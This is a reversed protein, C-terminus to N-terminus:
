RKDNILTKIQDLLMSQKNLISTFDIISQTKDKDFAKLDNISDEYLKNVQNKLLKLEEKHEDKLDKLETRKDKYLYGIVFVLVGLVYVLLDNVSKIDPTDIYLLEKLIM